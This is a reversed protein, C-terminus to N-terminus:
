RTHFRSCPAPRIMGTERPVDAQIYAEALAKAEDDLRLTEINEEPVARIHARVKDPADDLEQLTLSSMVLTFDGRVFAKMLHASSEAFETDECGGILFADVYIRQKM